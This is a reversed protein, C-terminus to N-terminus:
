PSLPPGKTQLSESPSQTSWPATLQPEVCQLACGMNVTKARTATNLSHILWYTLDHTSYKKASIFTIMKLILDCCQTKSNDTLLGDCVAGANLICTIAVCCKAADCHAVTDPIRIKGHSIASLLSYLFNYRVSLTSSM